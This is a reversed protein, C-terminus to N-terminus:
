WRKVGSSLESSSPTGFAKEMGSEEPRVLEFSTKAVQPGFRTGQM